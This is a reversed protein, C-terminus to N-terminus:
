FSVFCPNMFFLSTSILFLDFLTRSTGDVASVLTSFHKEDSFRLVGTILVAVKGPPDQGTINTRHLESWYLANRPHRWDLKQAEANEETIGEVLSMDDGTNVTGTVDADLSTSEDVAHSDPWRDRVTSKSQFSVLADDDDEDDWSDERIDTISAKLGEVEDVEYEFSTRDQYLGFVERHPLDLPLCSANHSLIQYAM